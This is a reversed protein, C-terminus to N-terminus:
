FNFYEQPDIGIKQLALYMSLRNQELFDSMKKIYELNWFCNTIADAESESWGRETMDLLKRFCKANNHNVKELIDWAHKEHLEIVEVCDRVKRYNRKLFGSIKFEERIVNGIKKAYFYVESDENEHYKYYLYQSLNGIDKNQYNYSYCGLADEEVLLGDAKVKYYIPSFETIGCREVIYYMVSAFCTKELFDINERLGEFTSYPNFNIFGIDVAIGNERFYEICKLNDEKTAIKQYLKLDAANGSETGFIVGVLGSEKILHMREEDFLRYVESRFYTEYCINLGESIITEAIEWMREINKGKYDEFSDDIFWFRNVNYNNIIQKIEDIVNQPSRGRWRNSSCTGWFNQHWCFSCNGRCGRSTSIYAYKMNHNKLLDRKPYPLSDLDEILKERENRIVSGNNRYILSKISMIDTNNEIANVLNKFVIEGEGYTAYDFISYKELLKEGYLTPWYGGIVIICGPLEKKLRMCTEYVAKETTSYMCVGIIKPNYDIIQDYDLFHRTSNIIKVDFGDEELVAGISCIGIEEAMIANKETLISLLLIRSKKKM